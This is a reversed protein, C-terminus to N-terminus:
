ISSLVKLMVQHKRLKQSCWMGHAVARKNQVDFPFSLDLNNNKVTASIQGIHLANRPFAKHGQKCLLVQNHFFKQKKKIIFLERQRERRKNRKNLRCNSQINPLILILCWLLFYYSVGYNLM